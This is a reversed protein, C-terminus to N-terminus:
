RKSFQPAKRAKKLGYKKREVCRSDTTLLGNTRLGIKYTEKVQALAKAVALMIADTQGSIGGGKVQANISFQNVLGLCELPAQLKALLVPDRTLYRSPLQGNVLFTGNESETLLVRATAEKRRGIGKYIKNM